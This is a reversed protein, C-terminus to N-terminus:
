ATTRQGSSRGSSTTSPVYGIHGQFDRWCHRRGRTQTKTIRYEKHAKNWRRPTRKRIEISSRHDSEDEDHSVRIVNEVPYQVARDWEEPTEYPSRLWARLEHLLHRATHRGLHSSLYAEAQGTYDQTDISKLLFIIYERVYEAKTPRSLDIRSPVAVDENLFDFIRLERRLWTRARSVLEPRRRFLEPSLETYQSKGIQRRNSGVHLAYLQQRYIHRRRLLWEEELPQVPTQERQRCEENSNRESPKRVKYIEQATKGTEGDSHCRVEDVASQCLPCTPRFELWTAFCLFDFNKHGCPQAECRSTLRERCIVCIEPQGEDLDQESATCSM